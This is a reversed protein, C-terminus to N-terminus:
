KDSIQDEEIEMLRIELSIADREIKGEHQRGM